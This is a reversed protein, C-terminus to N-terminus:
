TWPRTAQTRPGACLRGKEKKIKKKQFRSGSYRVDIGATDRHHIVRGPRRPFIRPPYPRGAAAPRPAPRASPAVIHPSVILGRRTTSVCRARPLLGATRRPRTPCRAYLAGCARARTAHGYTRLAQARRYAAHWCRGISSARRALALLRGHWVCARGHAGRAASYGCGSRRRDCRHRTTPRRHHLGPRQLGPHNATPRKHHSMHGHNAWM